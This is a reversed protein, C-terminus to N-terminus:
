RNRVWPKEAVGVRENAARAMIFLLSSLRNMYALAAPNVPKQEALAVASREARRCIARAMHLVASLVSGGPLIFGRVPQLDAELASMRRELARVRRMSLMPTGKARVLDAGIEFLDRQIGEINRQMDRPAIAAACGLVASLEDIDGIAAVVPSAKSVQAQEPLSTIGRDGPRPSKGKPM